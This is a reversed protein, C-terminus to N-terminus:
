STMSYRVDETYPLKTLQNVQITFHDFDEEVTGSIAYIGKGRFPYARLALPFHVTDFYNGEYDTFFGFAMKEGRNTKSGKVSILYGYLTIDKKHLKKLDCATYVAEPLPSSLLDFPNCLPFGLLELEDFSQIYAHDNLSPLQHLHSRLDVSPFLKPGSSKAPAHKFHAEWMLQQKNAHLTRLAGIRILLLWQELGLQVREICDDFSSFPGNATREHVLQEITQHEIGRVHMFGLYIRTGYLHTHGFSKNICPPHIDAGLMRAEHVYVETTYYGGFNNIAAVMYELPFYTKLFLCQYSEVAYSASHGKAFAYGAFSEIQSWIIDADKSTHGKQICNHKFQAKVRDFEERSRYKGSMGRRLVDAEDLSLGGFLHAVKIVDEQYVMVGFTEPMIKLLEPHAENRYHPNRYRKIFELMMGSSSVGPRIVSSAAVLGLYNDVQLKTLLMRMAPSEIYFCGLAKASRLLTNIAPDTKFKEIAHIDIASRQEPQNYAIIDLTDKIKALGRQSLIDFKHLGIDEASHMDIHTTPYGKPPIFTSSYSYIPANTILIGCPHLTFNAPFDQMLTSYKHILRTLHNDHKEWGEHLLADIEEKPLGFVKGLERVAARKQYTNIAGLLTVNDFREFIYRTIDDRDTWSFDIDFDPPTQRHLNIFREFYLDLEIPDVDTIRLLYAVISNAGSGRGVYYYGKSRAYQIIDWNILFYSVFNKQRILLLEKEIRQKITAEPYVSDTYRYPLGEYCLKRLLQYDEEESSTYLALNKSQQPEVDEWKLHCSALLQNTNRMWEPQNAFHQEVTAPDVLLDTAQAHEAPALKSLLQNGEIARLLRHLNFDRQHRFTASYLAVTKDTPLKRTALQNVQAPTVGTFEHPLLSRKPTAPSNHPYIVWVNKWDPFSHEQHLLFHSLFSNIECIGEQNKALVIAQQQVGKRIDAGVVPRIGYQPALRLFEWIAATTNIDTLAATTHGSSHLAELLQSPSLTGYNLSYYSHTNLLMSKEHLFLHAFRIKRVNLSNFLKM